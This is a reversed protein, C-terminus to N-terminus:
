TIWSLAFAALTLVTEHSISEVYELEVMKDALLRFTWRANGKPVPSCAIAILHAENRLKRHYQRQSPSGNLAGELGEEVFRKRGREITPISVDVDESIQADSWNDGTDSSDAKLLIRAHMLKRASTKGTSILKKLIQREEDTLTVIYKKNM